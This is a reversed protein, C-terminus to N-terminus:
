IILCIGKLQISLVSRLVAWVSAEFSCANDRMRRRPEFEAWTKGAYCLMGSRLIRFSCFSVAHSSSSAAVGIKKGKKGERESRKGETREKREKKGSILSNCIDPQISGGESGSRRRRRSSFAVNLEDGLFPPLSPM